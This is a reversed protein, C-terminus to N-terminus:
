LPDPLWDGSAYERGPSQWQSSDQVTITTTVAIAMSGQKTVLLLRSTGKKFTTSRM